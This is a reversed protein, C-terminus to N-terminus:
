KVGNTKTVGLPQDAVWRFIIGLVAMVSVIIEDPIGIAFYKNAIFTIMGVVITWFAKSTWFPQTTM